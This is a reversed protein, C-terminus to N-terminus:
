SYTSKGGIGVNRGHRIAYLIGLDRPGTPFGVVVVICSVEEKACMDSMKASRARVMLAMVM